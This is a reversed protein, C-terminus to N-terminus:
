RVEYVGVPLVPEIGVFPLRSDKFAHAVSNTFVRDQSPDFAVMDLSPDAHADGTTARKAYPHFDVSM